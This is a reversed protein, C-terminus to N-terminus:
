EREEYYNTMWINDLTMDEVMISSGISNRELIMKLDNYHIKGDHLSLKERILEIRTKPLPVPPTEEIEEPANTEISKEPLTDELWTQIMDATIVSNKIIFDKQGESQRNKYKAMVMNLTHLKIKIAKPLKLVDINEEKILELHPLELKDVTPLPKSQGKSTQTPIEPASTSTEVMFKNKTNKLSAKLLNM